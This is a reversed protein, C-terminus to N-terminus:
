QKLFKLEFLYNMSKMRENTGADTICWNRCGTLLDLEEQPTIGRKLQQVLFSKLKAIAKSAQDESKSELIPMFMVMVKLKDIGFPTKLDYDIFTNM